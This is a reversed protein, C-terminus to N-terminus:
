AGAQRYAPIKFFSELSKQVKESIGNPYRSLVTGEQYPKRMILLGPSFAGSLRRWLMTRVM